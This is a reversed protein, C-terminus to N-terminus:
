AHRPESGSTKLMNSNQDAWQGIIGGLVMPCDNTYHLVPRINPRIEQM